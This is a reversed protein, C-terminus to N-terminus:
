DEMAKFIAPLQEIIDRPLLATEGSKKAAEDAAAGHAFVGQRVAELIDRTAATRAALIGALVDGSGGTAMGANGSTNVFAEGSPTAIVTCHGKLVLYVNYEKAFAKATNERDAQIEAVSKGCLRAMEGPHPTLIIPVSAQKLLSISGSLINIGDADIIIPCKANKIVAKLLAKCFIGKGIGCGIAVSSAGRLAGKIKLIAAIGLRKSFRSGAPLFVAEPCTPASFGYISAPLMCKAIGVGSRLCGKTAMIAAGAMGYSGAIILATGFSGKHASADRKPIKVAEAM